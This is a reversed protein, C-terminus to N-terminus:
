GSKFGSEDDRGSGGFGGWGGSYTGHSPVTSLYKSPSSIFSITIKIAEMAEMVEVIDRLDIYNIVKRIKEIWIKEIGLVIAYPIIRELKTPDEEMMRKLRDEEVREIFEKFGLVRKYMEVGRETKRPMYRGMFAIIVGALVIGLPVELSPHYIIEVNNMLKMLIYVLLIDICLAIYYYLYGYFKKKKDSIKKDSIFFNPLITPVVYFMTLLVVPFTAFFMIAIIMFILINFGFLILIIVIITLMALMFLMFLPINLLIIFIVAIKYFKKKKRFSTFFIPFIALVMIFMIFLNFIFIDPNQLVLAFGILFGIFSMIVGLFAYKERVVDPKEQFYGMQTLLNYVEDKVSEFANYLKEYKEAYERAESPELSEWLSEWLRLVKGDEASEKIAEFVKREYGELDDGEKLIEIEVDRDGL